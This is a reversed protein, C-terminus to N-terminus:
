EVNKLQAASDRITQFQKRAQNCFQQKMTPDQQNECQTVDAQGAEAVQDAAIAYGKVASKLSAPVCATLALCIVAFISASRCNGM